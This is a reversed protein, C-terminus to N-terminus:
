VVLTKVCGKVACNQITDFVNGPKCLEKIIEKRSEHVKAVCCNQTNMQKM